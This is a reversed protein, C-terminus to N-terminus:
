CREQGGTYQWAPFKIGSEQMLPFRQETEYFAQRTQKAPHYKVKEPHLFDGM